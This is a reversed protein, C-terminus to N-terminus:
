DCIRRVRVCPSTELALRFWSFFIGPTMSLTKSSEHMAGGVNTRPKCSQQWHTIHDVARLFREIPNSAKTPIGDFAFMGVTGPALRFWSFFIGPTMSLTKSSEHMTGSM